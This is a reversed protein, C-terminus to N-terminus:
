KVSFTYITTYDYKEGPHLLTSEFEPHNPADPAHQTELCFAARKVQKFGNKFPHPHALFNGSYFQVGPQNTLVNMVRGSEETYVEVVNKITGDANLIFNHDYGGGFAIQEDNEDNIRDGIRVPTRFDFPTGEVAYKKGTPILMRDIATIYDADIKMFHTANTGFDYGNLNFYTHNTLNLVTDKDTTAEYRIALSNDDSFTYTVKVELTGPFGEEMDPSTLTLVLGAKDSEVFPEAGWIKKDFGVNGGHLTKLGGDNKALTYTTGNLIFEANAIRNGYRGILAGQYGDSELYGDITDFGCIVDAMLGDRDPMILKNVIGGYNLITVSAGTRNKFTYAIVEEGTPLTGFLNKEFTMIFREKKPNISINM